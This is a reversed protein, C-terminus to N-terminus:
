RSSPRLRNFARWSRVLTVREFEPHRWYRLGHEGILFALLSIPGLVNSFLSWASWSLGAYILLSVVVMCLFYGVWVMTLRRTYAAMAPTFVEHVKSAILTILATRGPRLTVGFTWALALHILVHQAVYFRQVQVAGAVWSLVVWALLALLLLGACLVRGTRWLVGAMMVMVPASLGIAVALRDGQHAMLWYAGGVYVAAVVWGLFLRLRGM